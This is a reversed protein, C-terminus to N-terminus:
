TNGHENAIRVMICPPIPYGQHHTAFTKQWEPVMVCPVGRQLRLVEGSLFIIGWTDDDYTTGVIDNWAFFANRTEIGGDCLSFVFCLEDNDVPVGWIQGNPATPPLYPQGEPDLFPEM